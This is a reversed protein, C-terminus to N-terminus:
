TVGRKLTVDAFEPQGLFIRQQDNVGGENYVDKKIQVGLGSCETFSAAITGGIEVYFRNVTVYNLEHTVKGNVANTVSAAM